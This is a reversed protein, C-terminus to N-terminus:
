ARPARTVTGCRRNGRGLGPCGNTTNVPRPRPLREHHEGASAPETPADWGASAELARRTLVKALHVRYDVSANLDAQPDAEAAAAEPEPTETAESEVAEPVEGEPTEVDVNEDEAM